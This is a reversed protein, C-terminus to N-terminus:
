SNKISKVSTKHLITSVKSYTGSHPLQKINEFDGDEVCRRYSKGLVQPVDTRQIREDDCARALMNVEHETPYCDKQHTLKILGSVDIGRKKGVYRLKNLYNRCLAQLTRNKKTNM